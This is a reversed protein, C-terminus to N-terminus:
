FNGLIALNTQQESELTGEILELVADTHREVRQRHQLAEDARLGAQEADGRAERAGAEADARATGGILQGAPGAITELTEGGEAVLQWPRCRDESKAIAVQTAEASAAEPLDASKGLQAASGVCQLTGGAAAMGGQIWAQKAIADAADHMARVEEAVARQQAERAARLAQDDAESRVFDTHVMLAALEALPNIATM